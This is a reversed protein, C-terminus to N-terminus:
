RLRRPALWELLAVQDPSPNAVAALEDRLVPLDEAQDVDTLHGLEVVAGLAALKAAIREAAHATSYPVGRWAALPLIARSGVLYFGGDHCRGLVHAVRSDDDALHRFASTILQPTIQPSDVGIAAVRDFSQRLCSFVCALRDGLGGGRQSICQFQQWLPHQLSTQEAVAWFPVVDELQSVLAATRAVAAVSLRYFELAAEPGIGEALRTKIPSSGPTKVFLALAAPRRTMRLSESDIEVM